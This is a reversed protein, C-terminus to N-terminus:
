AAAQSAALNRRRFRAFSSVIAMMSLSGVRAGTPSGVVMFAATTSLKVAGSASLSIGFGTAPGPSITTFTSVEPSQWVSMWAACPSQGTLGDGGNTGPCSPM